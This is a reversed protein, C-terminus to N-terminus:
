FPWDGDLRELLLMQKFTADSFGGYYFRGSKGNNDPAASYRYGALNFYHIIPIARIVAPRLGYNDQMDTFIIVRDHGDYQDEVSGWINTCYGVGHNPYLAKIGRLVSGAYKIRKSRDGFVALDVSEGKSALVSAFLAGVEWYQISSNQSLPASMSGSKDVLVLTRGGFSPVNVVSHELAEELPQLFRSSEMNKYASLFRFPLQRSKEVEKPDEIRKAVKTLVPHSVGAQEFNRLNRLLAMYGMSPIVKEWHEGTFAGGILGGYQEWTIGADKLQNASLEKIETPTLQRIDHQAKIKPIHEFNLDNGYEKDIIYQFIAKQREVDEASFHSPYHRPSPHTLNLVHAMRVGRSRGNYKMVAYETYLRSAARALGKRLAQPLKPSPLPYTREWGYHKQMWYALIEAPEDARQCVGDIVRAGNPGGAAVYEAAIILSITRLNVEPGRLWLVFRELWEPDKAAVKHTLNRVRELRDEAGEYFTDEGALTNIATMFLESKVGFANNGPVPAKKVKIPGTSKKAKPKLATTTNSLKAM